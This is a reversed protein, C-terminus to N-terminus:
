EFLHLPGESPYTEGGAAARLMEWAELSASGYWSMLRGDIKVIEPCEPWEGRLRAADRKRFPYPETSLFITDISLQKMEGVTIEPYRESGEYANRWGFVELLRSIYTDRGALMYPERWIFYLFRKPTRLTQLSQFANELEQALPSFIQSTRLFNEMDYLMSPVEYPGKPFTLLLPFEKQLIEVLEKPNEEQNALIHTPALSRILDLDFDKTGGVVKATRHLDAPEVCFQTCGVLESRLGQRVVTESLSPVLSIIRRPLNM